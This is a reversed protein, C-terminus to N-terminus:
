LSNTKNKSKKLVILIILALLIIAFLIIIYLLHYPFVKLPPIIYFAENGAKDVAKIKIESKRSQDALLYPFSVNKWEENREKPSESVLIKDIGATDDKANVSLFYKNGFIQPDQAVKAELIQPPTSDVMIRFTFKQSWNQPPCAGASRLAADQMGCFKLHFYYVGNDLGSLEIGEPAAFDPESDPEALPDASIIYSYDYGTKRTWNVTIIKSQYWKNQDPHDPSNIELFKKEAVIKYNGELLRKTAETGAGDNLLIKSDPNWVINLSETERPSQTKIETKLIISFLKGDGAFGNPIGGVFSIKGGGCGGGIGGGASCPSISPTPKQPWFGIVSGGDSIDSVSLIEAPYVMEGEIANISENETDIRAEVVFSDGVTIENSAPLFYLTAANCIVCSCLFLSVSFCIAFIKIKKMIKNM